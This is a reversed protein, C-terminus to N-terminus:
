RKRRDVGDTNKYFDRKDEYMRKDIENIFDDFNFSETELKYKGMSAALKYPEGSKENFDELAQRIESMRCSVIREDVTNLLIIFEDGAYRVVVGLDGIVKCFIRAANSLARDGVGHGWRDNISKFSNLDLMVGFMGKKRKGFNFKLLRDLYSRNYMGTLFDRYIMENQLSGLIGAVSIALCVANVSVGYFMCQVIGGIFVPLAFLWLPFFKLMGGRFRSKLYIFISDMLLIYNFVAFVFFVSKRQYVNTEDVEFVLPVFFNVLLLVACGTFVTWVFYKQDKSLAGSLHFGTFYVWAVAASIQTFFLWTNGGVIIARCLLGPKGDVAYVLPDVICNTFSFFMLLILAINEPSRDRFRWFNGLLLVVLLLVGLLNSMGVLTLDFSHTVSEM